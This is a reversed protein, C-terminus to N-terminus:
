ENPLETGFKHMISALIVSGVLWIKRYEDDEELARKSRNIKDLIESPTYTLLENRINKFESEDITTQPDTYIYNGNIGKNWYLHNINLLACILWQNRFTKNDLFREEMSNCKDAIEIGTLLEMDKQFQFEESFRNFNFIPM